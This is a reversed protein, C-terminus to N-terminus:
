VLIASWPISVTIMCSESRPSPAWFYKWKLTQEGFQVTRHRTAWNTFFGGAICSVQTGNRHWSSERPFPYALCELICPSGQHSLCYLIWKCHPLGTNSWQTPIIEQLLSRSGVGTNQGPSHPWLSDSMASRNLMAYICVYMCSYM